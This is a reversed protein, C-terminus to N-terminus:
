TEEVMAGGQVELAIDRPGIGIEKVAGKFETMAGAGGGTTAPIQLIHLIEREGGLEITKM